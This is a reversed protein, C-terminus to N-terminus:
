EREKRRKDKYSLYEQHIDQPIKQGSEQFNWPPNCGVRARYASVWEHEILKGDVACPINYKEGFASFTSVSITPIHYVWVEVLHQQSLERRILTNITFRNIGPDDLGAVLYFLLCSHIGGTGNSYGIKYVDGEVVFLYINTGNATKQKAPFNDDYVIKLKNSYHVHRKGVYPKDDVAVQGVRVVNGFESIHM